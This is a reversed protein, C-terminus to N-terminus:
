KNVEPKDTRGLLYDVSIDFYDAIVILNEAAPTKTGKKWNSILGQSIGTDASLKYASISRIQLLKVFVHKFDSKM